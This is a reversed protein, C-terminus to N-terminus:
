IYKIMCEWENDAVYAIVACNDDNNCEIHLYVEKMVEDSIELWTSIAEIPYDLEAWEAVVSDPISLQQSAMVIASVAVESKQVM